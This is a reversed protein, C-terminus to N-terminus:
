SFAAYMALVAKFSPLVKLSTATGSNMVSSFNLSTITGAFIIAGQFLGFVSSYGPSIRMWVGSLALAAFVTASM